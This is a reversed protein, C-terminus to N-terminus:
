AGALLRPPASGAHHAAFLDTLYPYLPRGQRACTAAVTLIGAVFAAGAESQTGFSGKRWLVAPRLAREASNNTPEVGPLRTFAWLAARYATMDRVLGRTKACPSGAHVELLTSWRSEINAMATRLATRDSDAKHLHWLEFMEKILLLGAQGFLAGDGARDVLAQLNRKIHAWCLQRSAADFWGYGVWRDTGLVGHFGGLLQRAFDSGRGPVLRFLTFGACVAVWLWGKDGAFRFSTEDANAVEAGALAQAVEEVAPEMLKGAKQCTKDIMGTSLRINFLSDFIASVERRSTRYRGSLVTIAALLRPGFQGRPADAPLRAETVEGCECLKAVCVHETVVARIVPLEAIQHRLTEEVVPASTLSRECRWCREPAHTVVHDVREPGVLDRMNRKHGPQGGPKRGSPVKSRRRVWPADSSPPKSSNGSNKGLQARLEAIEARAEALQQKLEAILADRPDVDAV